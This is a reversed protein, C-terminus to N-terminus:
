RAVELARTESPRPRGRRAIGLLSDSSVSCARAWAALTAVSPVVKGKEIRYITNPQLGVLRAFGSANGLGAAIRAARLRGGLGDVEM